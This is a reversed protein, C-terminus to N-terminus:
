KGLLLLSLPISTLVYVIVLLRWGISQKLHYLEFESLKGQAIAIVIGFFFYMLLTKKRELSSPIYSETAVSAIDITSPEM